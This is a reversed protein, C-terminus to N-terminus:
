QEPAIFPSPYGSGITLSARFDRAFHRIGLHKMTIERYHYITKAKLGSQRCIETLPVHRVLWRLAIDAGRHSVIASLRQHLFSNLEKMVHREGAAGNMVSGPTVTDSLVAPAREPSFCFGPLGAMVADYTKLGTASFFDGVVTDSFLFCKQTFLIYIGPWAKRIKLVLPVSQRPPMDLVVLGPLPLEGDPFVTREPASHICVSWGQRIFTHALATRHVWNTSCVMVTLSKEPVSDPQIGSGGGATHNIGSM